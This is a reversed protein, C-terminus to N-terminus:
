SRRNLARVEGGGRACQCCLAESPSFSPADLACTPPASNRLSPSRPANCGGVSALASTTRSLGQVQPRDPATVSQVATSGDETRSRKNYDTRGKRRGGRTGGRSGCGQGGERSGRRRKRRNRRQQPTQQQGSRNPEENSGSHLCGISGAPFGHDHLREGSGRRDTGHIRHRGPSVATFHAVPSEPWAGIELLMVGSQDMASQEIGELVQRGVLKLCKSVGDNRGSARSALILELSLQPGCRLHAENGLRRINIRNKIWFSTAAQILISNVKQIPLTERANASM